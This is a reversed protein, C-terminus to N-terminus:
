RDVIFPSQRLHHRHFRVSGFGDKANVKLAMLGDDLLVSSGVPVDKVFERYGTPIVIKGDQNGGVLPESTVWVETGEVLSLEGGWLKGVRIKPGQLDAMIGIPKRLERELDRLDDIIRTFEEHSGHSFNLRVVDMGEQALQRLMPKTSVAPGITCIIKTKRPNTPMIRCSLTTGPLQLSKRHPAIKIIFNPDPAESTM